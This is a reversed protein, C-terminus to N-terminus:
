EKKGLEISVKDIPVMIIPVKIKTELWELSRAFEFANKANDSKYKILLVSNETFDMKEIDFDRM